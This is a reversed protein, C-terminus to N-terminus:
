NKNVSSLLPGSKLAISFQFTMAWVNWKGNVFSLCFSWPQWIHHLKLKTPLWNIIFNYWNQFGFFFLIEFVQHTHHAMSILSFLKNAKSIFLFRWLSNRSQNKTRIWLLPESFRKYTRQSKRIALFCFRISLLCWVQRCVKGSSSSSHLHLIPPMAICNFSIDKWPNKGNQFSIAAYDSIFYKWILRM